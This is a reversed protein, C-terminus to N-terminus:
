LSKSHGLLCIEPTNRLPKGSALLGVRFMPADKLPYLELLVSVRREAEEYPHLLVLQRVSRGVSALALM